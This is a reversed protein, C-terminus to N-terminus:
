FLFVFSLHFYEFSKVNFSEYFDQEKEEINRIPIEFVNNQISVKYYKNFFIIGNGKLYTM